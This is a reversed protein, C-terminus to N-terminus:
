NIRVSEIAEALPDAAHDLTYNAIAHARGHDGM